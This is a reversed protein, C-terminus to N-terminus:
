AARRVAAERRREDLWTQFMLVPWLRSSSDVKGALHASWAGRITQSNWYGDSRLRREALLDDAWMRLPGRLWEALPVGFGM